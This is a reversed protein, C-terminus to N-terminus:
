CPFCPPLRDWSGLLPGASEVPVDIADCEVLESVCQSKGVVVAISASIGSHLAGRGDHQLGVEIGNPYRVGILQDRDILEVGPRM